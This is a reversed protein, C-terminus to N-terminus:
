QSEVTKKRESALWGAEQLIISLTGVSVIIQAVMVWKAAPSTAQVQNPNPNYLNPNPSPSPSPNPHVARM